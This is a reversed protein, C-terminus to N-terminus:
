YPLIQDAIQQGWRPQQASTLQGRGGYSIRAGAIRDYEIENHRSIDEPRVIGTVRLDRLENNVRVEQDGQIVMQGNPLVQIVTAAIRLRLKEDRRTAGNGRFSSDSSLDLSPSLRTTDFPLVNQIAFAANLGAGDGGSRTRSTTNKMEASEDIEISVTLLDGLGRARRDGLLGKPGTNWLSAQQYEYRAAQPAPVALAARDSTVLEQGPDSGIATMEPPRMIPACGLALLPALLILRRTM